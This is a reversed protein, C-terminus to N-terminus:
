AAPLGGGGRQWAWRPLRGSGGGRAARLVLLEPGRETAGSRGCSPRALSSARPPARASVRPECCSYRSDSSPASGGVLPQDPLPVPAPRPGAARRGGGHGGDALLHRALGLRVGLRVGGCRRGVLGWGWCGGSPHLEGPVRGGDQHHHGRGEPRRVPEDHTHLLYDLEAQDDAAWAGQGWEYMLHDVPRYLYYRSIFDHLTPLASAPLLVGGLGGGARLM